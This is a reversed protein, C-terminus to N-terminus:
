EATDPAPLSALWATVARRGTLRVYRRGDPAVGGHRSGTAAEFRSGYRDRYSPHKRWSWRIPHDADAINRWRERNGNWLHTGRTARWATRTIVQWQSLWRPLDLWVVTDARAWVQERVDSYNGDVVWADAEIAREVDAVFTPRPVWGPGHFLADLEIHPLGTRVSIRRAVTTKGSGSVGVVM